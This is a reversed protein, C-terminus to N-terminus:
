DLALGGSTKGKASSHCGECKEILLPRIRKEFFDADSEAFVMGPLLLLPIAWLLNGLPWGKRCIQQRDNWRFAM